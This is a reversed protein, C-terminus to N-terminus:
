TDPNIWITSSWKKTKLTRWANAPLWVLKGAWNVVLEETTWVGILEDAFRRTYLCTCSVGYKM